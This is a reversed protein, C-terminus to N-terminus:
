TFLVEDNDLVQAEVRVSLRTAVQQKQERLPPDVGSFGDGSDGFVTSDRSDLEAYRSELVSM